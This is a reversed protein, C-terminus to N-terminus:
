AQEAWASLEDLQSMFRVGPVNAPAGQGGCVVHVAPDLRRRLEHLHDVAETRTTVSVSIFVAKASMQGVVKAIGEVPTDVGLFVISFGAAGLVSAAMHLGLGHREGPLTALVGNGRTGAEGLPTWLARLRQAVRESAFHEHAVSLEGSAWQEGVEHMLPCVTTHIFSQIGQTLARTALAKDLGASDLRRVADILNDVGPAQPHGGILRNLADEPLGVVNSARHGNALAQAVRRLRGVISADYVRQGGDTRTPKPFGYRREWTRLTPIPIGTAKSVGGISLTPTM